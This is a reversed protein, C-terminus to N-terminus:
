GEGHPEGKRDGDVGFFSELDELVGELEEDEVDWLEEVRQKLLANREEVAELYMLLLSIRNSNMSGLKRLTDISVKKEEDILDGVSLVIDELKWQVDDSLVALTKRIKELTEIRRSM